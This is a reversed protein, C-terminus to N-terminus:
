NSNSPPRQEDKFAVLLKTSRRTKAERFDRWTAECEPSASVRTATDAADWLKKELSGNATDKESPAIWIM